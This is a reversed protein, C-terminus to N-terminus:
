PDNGVAPVSNAKTFSALLLVVKPASLGALLGIWIAQLLDPPSVKGTVYQQAVTVGLGFCVAFLHTLFEKREPNPCTSWRRVFSFSLGSLALSLLFSLFGGPLNSAFASILAPLGSAAKIVAEGHMGFLIALTILSGLTTGAIKGNM